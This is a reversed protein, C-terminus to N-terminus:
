RECRIRIFSFLNAKTNFRTGSYHYLYIALLCFSPLLISLSLANSVVEDIPSVASLSNLANTLKKGLTGLVSM